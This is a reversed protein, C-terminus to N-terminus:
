LEKYGAIQNPVIGIAKNDEIGIFEYGTYECDLNSRKFSWEKCKVTITHGSKLYIELTSM